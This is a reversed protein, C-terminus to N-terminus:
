YFSEPQINLIAEIINIIQEGVLFPHRAVINKLFKRKFNKIIKSRRKFIELKLYVSAKVIDERRMEATEHTIAEPYYSVRKRILDSFVMFDRFSKLKPKVGFEEAREFLETHPLLILPTVWKPIAGLKSTRLILKLTEKLEKEGEGPLGTMWWSFPIIGAQVTNKISDIILDLTTPRRILKLVRESGSEIGYDINTCGARSLDELIGRDLFGPVSIMNFGNIEDSIGEKILTETLKRLYKKGSLYLNDQFAFERCGEEMLLNIQNVIWEPSHAVFRERGSLVSIKRDICYICRYPCPGRCTNVASGAFLRRSESGNKVRRVVRYTFPPIEDINEFIDKRKLPIEVVHGNRFTVLGGVGVEELSGKEEIRRALQLFTKEAEGKLVADVVSHYRRMIQDAFLTAHTGGIVIPLDPRVRKIIRATQLAGKSFHLWNLEIGVLKCNVGKIIKSFRRSTINDLHLAEGLNWVVVNFGNLLLTSAIHLMGYGVHYSPLAHVAGKPLNFNAPPHILLVDTKM